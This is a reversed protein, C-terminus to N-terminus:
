DIARWTNIRNTDTLPDQCAIIIGLSRIEYGFDRSSKGFLLGTRGNLVM